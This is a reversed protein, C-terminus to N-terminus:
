VSCVRHARRYGVAVGGQVRRPPTRAHTRQPIRRSLRGHRRGQQRGGCADLPAAGGDDRRAHRARGGHRCVCVSAMACVWVRRATDICWLTICVSAGSAAANQVVADVDVDGDSVPACVHAVWSAGIRGPLSLLSKEGFGLSGRFNVSLVAFGQQALYTVATSYVTPVTSHPGGHPMVIMPPLPAGPAVRPRLLIAEFDHDDRDVSPSVQLLEWELGSLTREVFPSATARPLVAPPADGHPQLVLTPPETPSEVRVLLGRECEDLLTVSHFRPGGGAQVAAVIAKGVDKVAGTHRNISVVTSRSRYLTNTFLHVGDSGPVCCGNVYEATLGPFADNSAPVHVTDVLLSAAPVAQAVTSAPPWPLSYMRVGARHTGFRQEVGVFYLADGSRSFTPGQANFLSSLRPHRTSSDSTGAAVTFPSPAVHVSSDRNLCFVIGPLLM